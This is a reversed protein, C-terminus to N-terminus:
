RKKRAMLAFDEEQSRVKQRLKQREPDQKVKLKKFKQLQKSDQAVCYKLTKLGSNNNKTSDINKEKWNSKKLRVPRNGVYRGDVDRLAAVM